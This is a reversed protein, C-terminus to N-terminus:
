LDAMFLLASFVELCRLSINGQKRLANLSFGTSLFDTNLFLVNLSLGVAVLHINQKNTNLNLTGSLLKEAM